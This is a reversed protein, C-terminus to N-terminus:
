SIDKKMEEFEEKNIEGKAYRSKLIKMSEEESKKCSQIAFVICSILGIIVLIGGSQMYFQGREYQQRLSPSLEMLWESIPIGEVDYTTIESVMSYGVFFIVIGVCLVIIGSALLEKKMEKTERM